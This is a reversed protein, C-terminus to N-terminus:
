RLSKKLKSFYEDADDCTMAGSMVCVGAAGTKVVEGVNEPSIGGIAYVPVDLARVMGALFDLGRGPLGKKCDTEFIHGAIVYDCGLREAEKGEEVSHCSTGVLAFKKGIERNTRLLPLPIHIADCGFKEAAAIHSHAIVRGCRDIVLRLLDLYQEDDSKKDRLIIEAHTSIAALRDLFDGKCLERDTVCIIKCMCTTM